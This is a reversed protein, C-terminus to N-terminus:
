PTACGSPKGTGRLRQTRFTQTPPAKRSLQFSPNVRGEAVGEGLEVRPASGAYAGHQAGLIQYLEALALLPTGRGGSGLTEARDTPLPGQALGPLLPSALQPCLSWAERHEDGWGM